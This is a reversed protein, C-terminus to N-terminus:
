NEPGVRGSKATFPPGGPGIKAPGITVHSVEHFIGNFTGFFTFQSHIDYKIEILSTM